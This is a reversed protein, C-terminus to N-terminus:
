KDQDSTRNKRDHGDWTRDHDNKETIVVMGNELYRSWTNWKHSRSWVRDHDNTRKKYLVRSNVHRNCSGDPLKMINTNLLYVSFGVFGYYNHSITM